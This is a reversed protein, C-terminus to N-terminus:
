WADGLPEAEQDGDILELMEAISQDTKPHIWNDNLDALPKLVFLREHMRPHPITLDESEFVQEEYAILDLDLVRPANKVSRVRGFEQEINLLLDLLAEPSLDTDVEIVANHYWNQSVDFPVPATKWIRSKKVVTAGAALILCAATLTEIPSGYDSNLNAGMGILIM